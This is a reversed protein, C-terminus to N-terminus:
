VYHHKSKGQDHTQRKVEAWTMNSYDIMKEMVDGHRFGARRVDFAFEGTMDIDTFTWVPPLNDTSVGQGVVRKTGKYCKGKLAKGKVMIM